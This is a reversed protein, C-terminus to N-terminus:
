RELEEKLEDVWPIPMELEDMLDAPFGLNELEGRVTTAFFEEPSM